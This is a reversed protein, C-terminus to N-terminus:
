RREKLLNIVSLADLDEQETSKAVKKSFLEREISNLTIKSNKKLLKSVVSDLEYITVNRQAFSNAIEIESSSLLRSLKSELYKIISPEDQEESPKQLLSEIVLFLSDVNYIEIGKNNKIELEIKLYGLEMLHSLSEEIVRKDLFSNKQILSPKLDKRVKLLDLIKILVFVDNQTLSLKQYYNLILNSYDLYGEQYLKNIM